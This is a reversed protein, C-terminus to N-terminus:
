RVPGAGIFHGIPSKYKTAPGIADQLIKIGEMSRIMSTNLSEKAQDINHFGGSTEATWWEWHLHAHEHKARAEDLVKESVGDKKAEIFKKIFMELWFEAKRAKGKLHAEVSDIVYQAQQETWDAHAHCSLCTEKLYHTPNTQWHLTYTVGTVEDKVKPMHCDACSVGMQHHVSNWYTEAEPHQYKLLETGTIGHKFGRFSIRDYDALVNFVDQMPFYNSRRDAMTIKEGTKPDFGPNCNYEVHCQACMLNSDPFDLKAIKRTFGRMGMDIVEVETRNPDNHWLTNGEPRIFVDILADRVVRPRTSHPDHCMFCNMPHQLDKVFEHVDSTRSWKAGEVPDGMFAWSLIIDQTKCHMCVPNGFSGTGHKYSKRGGEPFADYIVDWMKLDGHLALYAWGDKPQYRGGYARDVLLHDILMWSHSRQMNHERTFGHPMMLLDFAPAKEKPQAKEQRALRDWNMTFFSDYQLSHCTACAKQSTDTIPWVTEGREAAMMHADLNSHCQVCNVSEHHGGTRFEEIQGHCAFCRQKDVPKGALAAGTSLCLGLIVVLGTYFLKNM